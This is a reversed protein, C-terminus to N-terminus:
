AVVRLKTPKSGRQFPAWKMVLEDYSRPANNSQSHFLCPDGKLGCVQWHHPWGVVVGCTIM